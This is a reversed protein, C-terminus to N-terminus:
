SGAAAPATPSRRRRRRDMTDLIYDHYSPMGLYVQQTLDALTELNDLRVFAPQILQARLGGQKVWEEHIHYESFLETATLVIVPARQRGQELKRGWSALKAVRVKEVESLQEKFVAIVLFMGPIAIALRQLRDVDDGQVAEDAFSKAEGAVLCPEGWQRFERQRRYWLLLDVESEGGSKLDLNTSFVISTEGPTLCRAFVRLALVTGYAGGAFGPVSFPGAVRYHWPARGFNMSGQPFNFESLCRGCSVRIDLEPLAYWNKKFCNPCEITLGLQLASARIFDDLTVTRGLQQDNARRSLMGVWRGAPSTRDPYEEVRGHRQRVSKAMKDLLELTEKHALLGAGQFGGVAVLVQDAVRGPDSADAKIGRRSLWGIIADRGFPLDLLERHQKYRQPLIFGERSVVVAGGTRIALRHPDQLTTLLFTAVQSHGFFDRVSLINVWRAASNGYAEAFEPALSRFRLRNESDKDATLELDATGASIQVMRPRPMGDDVHDDWISEFRHSWYWSEQKLGAFVRERVSEAHDEPISRGFQVETHIMVGHRNRPLPRHHEEIFGRLFGRAESLWNVNVPTVDRRFLRLNWLDLLDLPSSPDLIFLTPGPSRSSFIPDIKYKTLDLPTSRRSKMLDLWTNPTLKVPDPSFVDRFTEGLYSLGSDRPLVGFSVEAFAGGGPGAGRTLIEAVSHDRAQRPTFQFQRRYLDRYIYFIDLGFTFEPSNSDRLQVLQGLPIIRPLGVELELDTLGAAAALGPSAEVYVDPEFFRLYGAALARGTPMLHPGNRWRKPLVRSVPIIPNYIGGWLCTCLRM